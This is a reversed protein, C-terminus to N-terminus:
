EQGKGGGVGQAGFLAGLFGCFLVLGLLAAIGQDQAGTFWAGIGFAVGAVIGFLFCGVGETEPTQGGTARGPALNVDASEVRPMLDAATRTHATLRGEATHSFLGIDHAEGYVIAPPSYGSKSFFFLDETGTGRAGFLRQIDPRGTPASRHKVQAVVHAGRVDVGADAGAKTVIADPHGWARLM